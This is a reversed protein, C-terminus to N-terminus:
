RCLFHMAVNFAHYGGPNLGDFAYNLALSLGVLPRGSTALDGRPFMPKWIPWLSRISVNGEIAGVDDFIFPGKCANSYAYVVALGILLPALRRITRSGHTENSRDSKLM